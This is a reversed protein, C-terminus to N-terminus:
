GFQYNGEPRGNNEINELKGVAQARNSVNIKKFIRQLHNKVTFSSIDLILGIEINTKGNRVWELIEIERTSLGSKILSNILIPATIQEPENIPLGDTKRVAADVHPLLLEFLRREQETFSGDRRLLIYLHDANFRTDPIAHFLIHKMEHLETHALAANTNGDSISGMSASTVRGSGAVWHAHVGNRFDHISSHVPKASRIGPIASVIDYHYADGGIAGSFCILVDHPIAEQFDGQLWLFLQFHSQISLSNHMIRVILEPDFSTQSSTM